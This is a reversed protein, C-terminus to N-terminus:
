EVCYQRAFVLCALLRRLISSFSSWHLRNLSDIWKRRSPGWASAAFHEPASARRRYPLVVSRFDVQSEERLRSPMM